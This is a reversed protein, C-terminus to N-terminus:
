RRRNASPGSGTPDPPRNGGRPDPDPPPELFPLGVPRNHQVAGLALLVGATGTALDMSLRLLQDGPFALGAGDPGGYPLAHWDLGALLATARADGLMGACAIMGARGTFLGPQVFFDAGLVGTLRELEAAVAGDVGGDPRHTLYRALVLAIGVSGEELYPLTRWGQDVQLTGDDVLLCRRLDQRLAVEARDLLGTDGCREYARLFMLAPGASGHMLGARPHDGGSIEAVDAVGGLQDAVLAVVQDAAAAITTDATRDAFHLLNLGIGALGSHLGLTAADVPEGLTRELVAMADDRHGLAELTYAVGHLGNYFGGPTGAPATMAHKRLWDEHEPFRGAGTVALAHLVGAAGHALAIGGGPEFQMPDGPFLRDDREPTASALIADALAARVEAWAARGPMPLDAMGTAADDEGVITAVAAALPEPAVPFRERVLAALHAAKGRHMPVTITTQPAYMGIRLCALAYRDIEVGRRDATPPRRSPPTPSTPSPM